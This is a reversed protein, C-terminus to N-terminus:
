LRPDPKYAAFNQATIKSYDPHEPNVLYNWEQPAAVSPVKLVASEGTQIWTDGIAQTIPTMSPQQWNAPLDAPDVEIIIEEPIVLEILRYTDLIVRDELHVLIELTATAINGSAYILPAGITNWRGGYLRAGGSLMEQPTAAFAPDAIRWASVM